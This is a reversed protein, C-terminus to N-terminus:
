KNTGFYKKLIFRIKRLIPHYAFVGVLYTLNRTLMFETFMFGAINCYAEKAYKIDTLQNDHRRYSFLCDSLNKFKSKPNRAIRLFLEHDECNNGYLYGKNEMLTETRFILAPHCMPNRYKLAKRIERDDEYFKFTHNITHGESNVLQVRCGVVVYSPNDELFNIQKELRLHHSIDDADMRALYKSKTINLGYNLAFAIGNLKLQHITFRPDECILSNLESTEADTLYRTLLYCEYDKFTQKKLSEIAVSLFQNIESVPMLITLIPNM